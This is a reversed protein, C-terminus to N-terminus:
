VNELAGKMEKEAEAETIIKKRVRTRKLAGNIEDCGVIAMASALYELTTRRSVGFKYCFEATLLEKDPELYESFFRELVLVIENIRHTRLENYKSM